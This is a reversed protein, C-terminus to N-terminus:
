GDRKEFPYRGKIVANFYRGKSEANVLGEYVAEPVLFYRYVAGHHFEADLVSEETSYGASTLTSSDIHVRRPTSSM